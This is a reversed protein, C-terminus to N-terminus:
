KPPPAKCGFKLEVKGTQSSGISSCADPCLYVKTPKDNDDYYWADDYQGCKSEDTVRTLTQPQGQDPVYQVLVLDPDIEEGAQSPEPVIYECGLTSVVHDAMKGLVSSWDDRCISEVIGGTLQALKQHQIGAKFAENYDPGPNKRRCGGGQADPMKEIDPDNPPTWGCIANYVYKRHQENGFMGAPGFRDYDHLILKDFIKYPETEGTAVHNDDQELTPYEADDDTIMIFYKTANM